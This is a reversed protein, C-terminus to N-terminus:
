WGVATTMRKVELRKVLGVVLSDDGNKEACDITQRMGERFVVRGVACGIERAADVQLGM